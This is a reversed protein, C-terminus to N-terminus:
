KPEERVPTGGRPEQEMWSLVLNGVAYDRDYQKRRRQDCLVVFAETAALFHDLRARKEDYSIDLQLVHDPHCSLSIAGYALRIQDLTSKPQIELAKYYDKPIM